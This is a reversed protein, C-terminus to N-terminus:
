DAAHVAAHPTVRAGPRASLQGAVIVREGATLGSAVVVGGEIRPGLEISRREVVDDAGVVLLHRGQQDRALAEEPVVLAGPLERMALRVRVFLGGTMRRGANDFVARVRLTGTEVDVEPDVYDVRGVLPFGQDIERGLEVPPLRELDPVSSKDPDDLFGLLVRDPVTFWVRIRRDDLVRALAPFGLGGVLSGVFYDCREGLGSIPAAIRTYSVDLERVALNKRAVEVNQLAVDHRAAAELAQLESIANEAHANRLKAATIGALEAEAEAAAVQAAAADRAAEFPAPDIVFMPDGEQLYAGEAYAIQQLVGQVRARVEVTEFPETRGSLVVHEVVDRVKAQAVTVPPPPPPQFAPPECAALLATALGALPVPFRRNM